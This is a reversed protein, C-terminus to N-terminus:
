AQPPTQAIREALRAAFARHKESAIGAQATALVDALNNALLAKVHLDLGPFVASHLVGEADPEIPQYEGQELRWWDIRADYVQWVLYERLGNRRYLRLKDRLNYSASTAAIEIMLEPPGEIYGDAGIQSAGGAAPDLRLLIEPQPENGIDLRVTANDGARVGPTAAIYLVAWPILLAHPEAHTEFRVPSGMFVNGEILEAKKLWPMAAYRREFEARWTIAM